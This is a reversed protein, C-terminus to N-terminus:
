IQFHNGRELKQKMKLSMAIYAIYESRYKDQDGRGNSLAKNYANNLYKFM